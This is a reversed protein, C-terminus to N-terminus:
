GKMIIAVKSYESLDDLDPFDTITDEEALLVEVPEVVVSHAINVNALTSDLLDVNNQLLCNGTGENM